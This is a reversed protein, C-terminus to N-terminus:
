PLSFLQHLNLAKGMRQRVLKSRAFLCLLPVAGSVVCSREALVFLCLVPSQLVRGAWGQREQFMTRKRVGAPVSLVLTPYASTAPSMNPKRRGTIDPHLLPGAPSAGRIGRDSVRPSMGVSLVGGVAGKARACAVSALCNHM